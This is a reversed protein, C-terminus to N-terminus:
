RQSEIEERLVRAEESEDGGLTALAETLQGLRLKRRALLRKFKEDSRLHRPLYRIVPDEGGIEHLEALNEKALERASHLSRAGLFEVQGRRDTNVSLGPSVGVWGDVGRPGSLFIALRDVPMELSTAALLRGPPAELLRQLPLLNFSGMLILEGTGPPRLLYVQPFVRRFTRALLRVSDSNLKYMQLWQFFVGDPKLHRAAVTFFEVTFLPAAGPVWPESPQSVIVDWRKSWLESGLLRRADGFHFRVRSKTGDIEHMENVGRTADAVLLGEPLFPLMYPRVKEDRIATLFGPEIEIVDVAVPASDGSADGLLAGLTVGSGLGILLASWEDQRHAYLESPLAGLLVQTPLDALSPKSRDAPVSGEVKGNGRVYVTNSDPHLDVSVIVERGRVVCLLERSRVSKEWSLTELDTRSWQYVGSLLRRPDWPEGVASLELAGYVGLGALLSACFSFPAGRLSPLRGAGPSGAKGLFVGLVSLGALMAIGMRFASELSLLSAALPGGAFAGLLAGLSNVAYSTGALRPRQSVLWPFLSGLLFNPLLVIAGAGLVGLILPSATFTRIAVLYAEPLFPVFFYAQFLLGAVVLPLVWVGARRLLGGGFVLSGFGVGLLVSSVIVTFSYVTAGVTLVLIRTWLVEWYLVAFGCLFLFLAAVLSLRGNAVSSDGSSEEGPALAPSEDASGPEAIRSLLMAGAGVGAQVVACLLVVGWEGLLPMAVLGAVMAGLAAGLANVGYVRRVRAELFTDRPLAAIVFPFAAGWPMALLVVVLILLVEGGPFRLFFGLSESVLFFLLIAGLAIFEAVGYALLPRRVRSFFREAAFAGLGMGGLFGAVVVAVALSTSGLLRHLVRSLVVEVGLASAGSLFLLLLLSQFRPFASLRM